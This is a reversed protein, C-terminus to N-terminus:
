EGAGPLPIASLPLTFNVELGGGPRNDAWIRGGHAEVIGKCISLGLGTGPATDPRNVRYFKDFIRELDEPPIGSGADGVAVRLQGAPREDATVRIPTGPPSYKTANDLLNVLVQAVLAADMPVAPLNPAIAEEVTRGALQPSVRELAVGIVEQIDAPRSHVHLAGAEIRTMGLLNGVLRNLREAEQYGDAALIRRTADDLHRNEDMLSSLAGTIAVLPTRLEHSISNLLAGQLKETAQVVELQRAHEALEARELALAAQGAFADLLRRQEPALPVAPDATGVGLVGLVGQPTKLPLYRNAAA